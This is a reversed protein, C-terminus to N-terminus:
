FLKGDLESINTDTAFKLLTPDNLVANRAAELTLDNDQGMGNAGLIRDGL